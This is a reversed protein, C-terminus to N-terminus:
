VDAHGSVHGLIPRHHVQGLLVPGAADEGTIGEAEKLWTLVQPLPHKFVQNRWTWQLSHLRLRLVTMVCLHEVVHSDAAPVSIM